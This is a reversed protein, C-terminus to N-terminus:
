YSINGPTAGSKTQRHSFSFSAALICFYLQDLTM